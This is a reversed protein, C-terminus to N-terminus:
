PNLALVISNILGPGLDTWDTLTRRHNLKNVKEVKLEMLYAPIKEEAWLAQNVTMRCPKGLTTSLPMDRLSDSEFSTHASMANWFKFGVPLQPGEVYDQSETNHLTLFFDVPKEDRNYDVIAQKQAAIEPMEASKVLDWNRNLDHGNVNFRVGGEASGDPDAMPIIKFIFIALYDKASPQTLYRLASDIVYSTGSEWAHQRGMLFVVRKRDAPYTEDTLTVMPIDRGQVTNGISSIVVNPNEKLENLLQQLNATTYPIQHAIWLTDKESKFRLNLEVSDENWTVEEDTLHTWHEQDYSIVPRTESTVAHAGPKYNYEGVLDTLEISLEKGKVGTMRFYYWSAQRNRNESDSQGELGCRWHTDNIKEVRGLSGGEFDYDITVSEKQKCSLLVTLTILFLVQRM